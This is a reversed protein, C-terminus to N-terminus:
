IQEPKTMMDVRLCVKFSNIIAYPNLNTVLLAMCTTLRKWELTWPLATGWKVAWTVAQTCETCFIEPLDPQLMLQFYYRLIKFFLLVTVSFSFSLDMINIFFSLNQLVPGSLLMWPRIQDETFGRSETSTCASRTCLPVYCWSSVLCQQLDQEACFFHFHQEFKRFSLYGDLIKIWNSACSAWLHLINQKSFPFLLGFM